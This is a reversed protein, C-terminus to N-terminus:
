RKYRVNRTESDKMLELKGNALTMIVRCFLCRFPTAVTIDTDRTAGETIVQATGDNHVINAFGCAPCMVHYGVLFASSTRQPVRRVEYPQLKCPRATSLTVYPAQSM